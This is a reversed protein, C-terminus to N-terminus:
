LPLIVSKKVYSYQNKLRLNAGIGCINFKTQFKLYKLYKMENSFGFTLASFPFQRVPFLLQMKDKKKEVKMFSSYM